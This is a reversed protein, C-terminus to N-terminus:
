RFKPAKVGNVDQGSVGVSACPNSPLMSCRKKFFIGLWLFFPFLFVLGCSTSLSSVVTSWVPASKSYRVRRSTVCLKIILAWSYFWDDRGAKTRRMMAEGTSSIKYSGKKKM